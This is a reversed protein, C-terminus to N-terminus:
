QKAEINRLNVIKKIKSIQGGKEIEIDISVSASVEEGQYDEAPFKFEFKNFKIGKLQGKVIHIKEGYENVYILDNGEIYFSREWEKGDELPEKRLVLKKGDDQVECDTAERINKELFSSIFNLTSNLVNKNREKEWSKTTTLSIIAIGLLFSISIVIGILLEILSFGNKKTM